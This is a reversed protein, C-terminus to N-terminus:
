CITEPFKQCHDRLDSTFIDSIPDCTGKMKKSTRFLIEEKDHLM